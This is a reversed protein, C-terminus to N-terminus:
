PLSFSWLRTTRWRCMWSGPIWCSGDLYVGILKRVNDFPGHSVVGRRTGATRGPHAPYESGGLQMRVRALFAPTLADPSAM